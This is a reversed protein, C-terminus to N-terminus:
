KGAGNQAAERERFFQADAKAAQLQFALQDRGRELDALRARLKECGPCPPCTAFCTVAV